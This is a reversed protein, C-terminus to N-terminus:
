ATEAAQRRPGRVFDDSLVLWRSLEDYEDDDLPWWGDRATVPLRKAGQYQPLL